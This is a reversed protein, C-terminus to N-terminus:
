MLAGIGYWRSLIVGSDHCVSLRPDGGPELPRAGHGAAIGVGMSVTRGHGEEALPASIKGTGEAYHLVPSSSKLAMRFIIPVAGSAERVNDCRVRPFPTGKSQPTGCGYHRNHGARVRRSSGIMGSLRSSHPSQREMPMSCGWAVCALLLMMPALKVFFALSVLHFNSM